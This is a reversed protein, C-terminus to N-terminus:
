NREFRIPKPEEVPAPEDPNHRAALRRALRPSTAALELEDAVAVDDETRLVFEEGEAKIIFGSDLAKVGISTVNWDGILENGSVLRIRRQDALVRVRIGPGSDGKMRLNGDLEVAM